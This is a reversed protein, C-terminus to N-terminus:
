RWRQPSTARPRSTACPFRVARAPSGRRASRATRPRRRAGRRVRGRATGLLAQARAEDASWVISSRATASRCSPSRATACSASGPPTSTRADRHRRQRRHRDPPLRAHRRRLGAAARVASHAGDAGIVLRAVCSASETSLTVGDAELTLARSTRRAAAARRRRQLSRATGGAAPPERRHLRPETRRRGRCRVGARRREGAGRERALRAHARLAALREGAIGSGPAPPGAAHKESARSLASWAPMSRAAPHRLSRCSRSSCRSAACAPAARAADGRVRRGPRRRRCVDVSLWRRVPLGRALRPAHGGFGASVRRAREQGAARPRVAAARPQAAAGHRPACRRVAQGTWRHLPDRRQSGARAVRRLTQLLEARAPMAPASGRHVEALMAADRLGLNFGQGAVPHLAQAANGILVTRAAVTAAARTLKLPYSARTGARMFRGARWGFRPRCSAGPLRCRGTRAAAAGGGASCTWVVATAVTTCRCCRWRAPPRSASTPRATTRGIREGREGGDGGSRLGRRGRRHRGRRAGRTRATPRWSWAHATSADRGGDAGASASAAGGDAAIQLAEVRAGARAAHAASRRQLKEWLAAGMVRNAVVYGFAEIGQERAELRAFGFRGADSVHITRIPGAQAARARGVRRPRSSAGAPMASRPPASM